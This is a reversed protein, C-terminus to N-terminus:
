SDLADNAVYSRQVLTCVAYCSIGEERGTFGMHETTTAKVSVRGTDAGLVASLIDVMQPVFPQIKPRQAVVTCDVNNIAYGAQKIREMVAELLAKSSRGKYQPDTDPFHVGIDGMGAAGLIADIVAHLLVDGDSHGELGSTWPILVGGLILPIGKALRHADYGFGIRM